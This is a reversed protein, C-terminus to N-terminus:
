AASKGHAAEHCAHCLTRLNEMRNSGGESRPIVHHVKLQHRAGAGCVTCRYSDRELVRERIAQSMWGSKVGRREQWKRQACRPCRGRYLERVSFARECDSCFQKRDAGKAHIVVM